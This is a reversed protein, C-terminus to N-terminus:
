KKRMYVALSLLLLSPIGTGIVWGWNSTMTQGWINGSDNNGVINLANTSCGNNIVYENPVNWQIFNQLANFLNIVSVTLLVFTLFVIWKVYYWFKDLKSQNDLNTTNLVLYTFVTLLFAM